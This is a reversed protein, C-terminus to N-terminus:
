KELINLDFTLVTVRERGLTSLGLRFVINTPIPTLLMPFAPSPQHRLFHHHRISRKTCITRRKNFDRPFPWVSELRSVMQVMQEMQEM